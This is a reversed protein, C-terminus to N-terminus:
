KRIPHFMYHGGRREQAWHLAWWICNEAMARIIDENGSWGGTSIRYVDGRQKWYGCDAYEWHERIYAMLGHYDNYPWERITKLEDETPYDNM